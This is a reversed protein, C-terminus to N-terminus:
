FNRSLPHEFFYEKNFYLKDAVHQFHNDYAYNAGGEIDSMHKLVIESSIHAICASMLFEQEAHRLGICYSRSARAVSCFLAYLEIASDGVRMIDIQKKMVSTGHSALLIDCGLHLRAISRELHTAPLDFSPHLHELLDLKYTIKDMSQYRLLKKM